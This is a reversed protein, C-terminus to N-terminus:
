HFNSIAPAHLVQEANAYDGLCDYVAGVAYLGQLTLPHHKWSCERTRTISRRPNSTRHCFSRGSHAYSYGYKMSRPNRGLSVNEVLKVARLSATFAAAFNSKLIHSQAINAYCTSHEAPFEDEAGLANYRTRCALM